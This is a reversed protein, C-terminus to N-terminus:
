LKVDRAWWCKHVSNNMEDWIHTPSQRDYCCLMSSSDNNLTSFFMFAEDYRRADTLTPESYRIWILCVFVCSGDFLMFSKRVYCCAILGIILKRVSLFPFFEMNGHERKKFENLFHQAIFDIAYSPLHFLSYFGCSSVLPTIHRHLYISRSVNQPFFCTKETLWVHKPKNTVNKKRM